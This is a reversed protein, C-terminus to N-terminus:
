IAAEIEEINLPKKFCNNILNNQLAEEIEENFDFGTLIYYSINPHYQKAKKIMEIGNMVPMRMDSIVVDINEEKDLIDLAEKPSISTLINFKKEFTREFIFLNIKEDDVYLITTKNSDM